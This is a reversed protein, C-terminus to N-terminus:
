NDFFKHKKSSGFLEWNDKILNNNELYEIFQYFQKKTRAKIELIDKESIIEGDKSKRKTIFITDM